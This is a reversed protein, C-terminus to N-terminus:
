EKYKSVAVELNLGFHNGKLYFNKDSNFTYRNGYINNWFKKFDGNLESCSNGNFQCSILIETDLNYSM